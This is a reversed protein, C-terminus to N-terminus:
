ICENSRSRSTSMCTGYIKCRHLSRQLSSESFLISTVMDMWNRLLVLLRLVTSLPSSLLDRQLVPKETRQWFCEQLGVVDRLFTAFNKNRPWILSRHHDNAFCVSEFISKLYLSVNTVRLTALDDREHKGGMREGGGGAGKRMHPPVYSGGAGGGGGGGSKGGLDDAEEMLNAAPENDDGLPAMTDKFPCRATFHDGRCIRCAVKKDRLQDKMSKEEAKGGGAKAEDAQVNKWDRSPKFVINEGVSTTDPQPGAPKGKELGFKSWSRREAVLPNVVEKHVTTRTKRTIKVRRGSDDIKYSITTKTGDKNVTTM